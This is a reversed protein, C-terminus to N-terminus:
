ASGESTLVNMAKRMRTAPDLSPDLNDLVSLEKAFVKEFIQNIMRSDNHTKEGFVLSTKKYVQLAEYIRPTLYYSVKESQKNRPDADSGKRTKKETQRSAAAAKKAAPAAKEISEAKARRQKPAPAEEAEVNVKPFNFDEFLAESSSINKAM